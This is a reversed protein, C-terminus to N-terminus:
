PAILARNAPDWRWLRDNTLETGGWWRDIPNHRSFDDTGALVAEGFKTLKLESNMYRERRLRDYYMELTFPGEDLGSVAPAPCHALGDLLTRVEPFDFVRRQNPKRDGPFVDLPHVNGPSILELLRMETAGLGTAVMPLEELLDLVTPRLQPLLSLDKGLLKFWGQPTPQRYAQWAMSAVELHDHLIKVAPLRWESLEEPSHNGIAVDAQFLTLRSALEGHSRFYDLLRILILQANPEPDICLEVADYRQCLEILGLGLNQEGLKRILPRSAHDLWHSGPKQTARAALMAALEADSPLPGWVFRPEFPIVIDARGTGKLNGAAASDATLILCTM